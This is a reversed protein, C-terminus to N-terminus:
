RRGPEARGRANWLRRLGFIPCPIPREGKVGLYGTCFEEEQGDPLDESGPRVGRIGVGPPNRSICVQCRELADEVAKEWDVASM